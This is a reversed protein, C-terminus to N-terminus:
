LRTAPSTDGRLTWRVPTTNGSPPRRDPVHVLQWMNVASMACLLTLSLPDGCVELHAGLPCDHRTMARNSLPGKAKMVEVGYKRTPQSFLASSLPVLGEKQSWATM